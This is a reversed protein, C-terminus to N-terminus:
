CSNILENLNKTINSINNSKAITSSLAVGYIGTKMLSSIDEIKIGGIAYIPINISNNKIINKYGNLGLIPSLNQKTNTFKYPGLGIYDVKSKALRIIDNYNNATGGIISKSHLIERAKEIPFDNKGLHVGDINLEKVIDIYDNLIFKSNFKECIKKIEYAENYIYDLSRNKIRLQILKIGANCVNEVLEINSKKELPQTIFYLKSLM